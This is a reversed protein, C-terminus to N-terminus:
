QSAVPTGDAYTRQWYDQNGVYQNYEYIIGDAQLYYKRYGDIVAQQQMITKLSEISNLSISRYGDETVAFITAPKGQLKLKAFVEDVNDETVVTWEVPRARYEDVSPLNLQPRPLPESVVKVFDEKPIEASCAGLLLFLAFYKM